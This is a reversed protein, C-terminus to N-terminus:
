WFRRRRRLWYRPPVLLIVALALLGYGVALAARGHSSAVIAIPVGFGALHVVIKGPVSMGRLLGAALAEGSPEDLAGSLRRREEAGVERALLEYMKRQERAFRAQEGARERSLDELAM